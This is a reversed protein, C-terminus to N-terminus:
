IKQVSFVSIELLFEGFKTNLIFFTIHPIKELPWTEGNAWDLIMTFFDCFYIRANKSFHFV